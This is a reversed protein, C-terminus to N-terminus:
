LFARPKGGCNQLRAILMDPFWTLLRAFLNGNDGAVGM